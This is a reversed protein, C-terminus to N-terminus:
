DDKPMVQITATGQGALYWKNELSKVQITRPGIGGVSSVPYDFAIEGADNTEESFGAPLQVTLGEVPGGDTTRTVRVKMPLTQGIKGSGPATVAVNVPAKEILLQPYWGITNNPASPHYQTKEYVKTVELDPAGDVHAMLTSTAPWEELKVKVTVQGSGGTMGKGLTHSWDIGPGYEPGQESWFRVTRGAIAGGATKTLQAALSVTEGVKGKVTQWKLNAQTLTLPPQVDFAVSAANGTYLADGEFSAELAVSKAGFGAPVKWAVTFTGGPSTALRAVEQGNVTVPIERGDVGEQDTVRVLKGGAQVTQGERIPLNPNLLDLSMKTAAKLVALKGQGAAANCRPNGAFAAEIVKSGVQNPVEYGISAVGKADTPVAGILAGDVMFRILQSPVPTGDHALELIATLPAEDGIARIRSEVDVKTALLPVTTPPKLAASAAGPPAPTAVGSGAKAGPASVGAAERVGPAATPPGAQPALSPKAIAAGPAGVQATPVEYACPVFQPAPPSVPRYAVPQAPQGRTVPAPQTRTTIRPRTDPPPQSLVRREPPGPPPVTPPTATRAGGVAGRQVRGPAASCQIAAFGDCSPDNCVQKTGLILTKGVDDARTFGQAPGLERSSCFGDAAPKGCDAGPRLCWDLAIGDVRPQQFTQQGSAPLATLALLTLSGAACPTFRTIAFTRGAKM